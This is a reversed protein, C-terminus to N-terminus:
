LVKGWANAAASLQKCHGPNVSACEGAIYFGVLARFILHRFGLRM